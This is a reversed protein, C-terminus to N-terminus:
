PTKFRIRTEHSKNTKLLGVGFTQCESEPESEMLGGRLLQGEGLEEHNINVEPVLNDGVSKRTM